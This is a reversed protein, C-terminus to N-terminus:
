DAEEPDPQCSTWTPTAPIDSGLSSVRTFIKLGSFTTGASTLYRSTGAPWLVEASVLSHAPM